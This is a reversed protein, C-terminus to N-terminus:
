LIDPLPNKMKEIVEESVFFTVERFRNDVVVHDHDGGFEGDLSWPVEKTCFIEVHSTKFSYIHESPLIKPMMLSAVVEQWMIPNTPRRILTVEFVGDNLCIADDMTNKLGGVYDSNSIMGYVFDDQIQRDDTRVLMHYSPIDQLRKAGELIYAIHGLMHKMNQPTQYSVDSFLGFAAVYVFIGNNFEGMDVAQPEGGLIDGVAELVNFSLKLSAAYDNTSGVPIYGLPVDRGSKLLGTVVEDLTGDGGAAVILSMYGPIQSVKEIADGAAQTPYVEVRYGGKVFMDIVEPLRALFSGKGARSNYILLM